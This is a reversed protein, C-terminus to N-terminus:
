LGRGVEGGEYQFYPVWGPFSAAFNRKVRTLRVRANKTDDAPDEGECADSQSFGRGADWIRKRLRYGLFAREDARAKRKM